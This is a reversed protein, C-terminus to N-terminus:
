SIRLMNFKFRERERLFIDKYHVSNDYAIDITCPPYIGESEAVVTVEIEENLDMPVCYTLGPSPILLKKCLIEVRDHPPKTLSKIWVTIYDNDNFRSEIFSLCSQPGDVLIGDYPATPTPTPTPSPTPTIFEFEQTIETPTPTPTPTPFCMDFEQALFTPTPTPTLCYPRAPNAPPTPPIIPLYREDDIDTCKVYKVAQNFEDSLVRVYRVGGPDGIDFDYEFCPYTPTPTPTCTPGVCGVASIYPVMMTMRPNGAAILYRCIRCGPQYWDVYQRATPDYIVDILEYASLPLYHETASCARYIEFFQIEDDSSLTWNISNNCGIASLPDSSSCTGMYSDTPTPTPTPTLAVPTFTGSYIPPLLVDLLVATWTTAGFLMDVARLAYRNSPVITGRADYVIVNRLDNFNGAKYASAATSTPPVTNGTLEGLKLQDTTSDLAQFTNIVTVWTAPGTRVESRVTFEGPNGTIPNTITPPTYPAGPSGPIIVTGIPHTNALPTSLLLSGHGIVQNYEVTPLNPAIIIETGVPFKAQETTSMPIELTGATLRTTTVTEGLEAPTPTPAPTVTPTPTPTPAYQIDYNYKIDSLTVTYTDDTKVNATDFVIQDSEVLNFEGIASLEGAGGTSLSLNVTEFKIAGFTDRIKINWLGSLGPQEVDYSIYVVNVAGTYLKPSEVAPTYTDISVQPVSDITIPLKIYNYSM